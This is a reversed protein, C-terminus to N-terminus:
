KTGEETNKQRWEKISRAGGHSIWELVDEVTFWGYGQDASGNVWVIVDYKTNWGRSKKIEQLQKSTAGYQIFKPSIAHFHHYDLGQKRAKGVLDLKKIRNQLDLDQTDIKIMEDLFQKPMKDAILISLSSNTFPNNNGLYTIAINKIKFNEYLLKLRIRSEDGLGIIAFGNEDWSTLIGTKKFLEPNKNTFGNERLDDDCLKTKSWRSANVRYILYTYENFECYQIDEMPANTITRCKIGVNKRTTTPIGLGRIIGKIGWEHEACYDHGLSVGVFQDNIMLFQYDHYAQRM